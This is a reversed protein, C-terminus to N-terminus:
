ISSYVISTSTLHLTQIGGRFTFSTSAEYSTNFFGFQFFNLFYFKFNLFFNSNLTSFNISVLNLLKRKLKFVLNLFIKFNIRDQRIDFDSKM